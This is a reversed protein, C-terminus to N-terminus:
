SFFVADRIKNNIDFYLMIRHGNLSVYHINTFNPGCYTDYKSSLVGLRGQIM